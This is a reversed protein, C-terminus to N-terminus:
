YGGLYAAIPDIILLSVGDIKTLMREVKELDTDLRVAEHLLRQSADYVPFGQVFIINDLDAKMAMLRPNITDEPDDESSMIVVKGKQFTFNEPHFTGGTSILSSLYFLVSSKGVGGEGAFVTVKGRAIRDPWLWDTKVVNFKSMPKFALESFFEPEEDFVDMSLKGNPVPMTTLM